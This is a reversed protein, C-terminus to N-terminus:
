AMLIYAFQFSETTQRAINSVRSSVVVPDFAWNVDTAHWWLLFYFFLFVKNCGASTAASISSVCLLVSLIIHPSMRSVRVPPQRRLLYNEFLTANENRSGEWPEAGTTDPQRSGGLYRNQTTQISIMCVPLEESYNTNEWFWGQLM